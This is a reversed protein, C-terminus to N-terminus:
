GRINTTETHSFPSDSYYYPSSSFSPLTLNRFPVRTPRQKSLGKLENSTVAGGVRDAEHFLVLRQLFSLSEEIPKLKYNKKNNCM